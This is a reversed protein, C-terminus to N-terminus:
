VSEGARVAVRCLYSGESVLRGALIDAQTVKSVLLEKAGRRERDHILYLNGDADEVGDPYSVDPRGDLLLFGKWTAGDDESLMATLNNRKEYNWHNVLLLKGDSLKRLFFRSCPGGLGSDVPVSWTNGRDTSWAAGIGKKRRILMLLRGDNLQAIMHEDIFREPDEAHSLLSFHEGRDTSVYVNSYNEEPLCHYQSTWKDWLACPMLWRDGVVTPKNLMIGNAIRRFDSFVPREACPDNCVAAWVGIRGDYYAYGQAVFFWLRGMPDMWLCPDFVRVSDPRAPLVALMPERVTQFEDDNRFLLAFNGVGEDEGGTYCAFYCKGDSTREIAPIGQFRRNANKGEEPVSFTLVPPILSDDPHSSAPLVPDFDIAM